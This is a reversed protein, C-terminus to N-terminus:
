SVRRWSSPAISHVLHCMVLGFM